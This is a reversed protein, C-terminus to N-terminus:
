VENGTDTKITTQDQDTKACHHENAAVASKSSPDILQQMLCLQKVLGSGNGFALIAGDIINYICTIYMVFNCGRATTSFIAICDTAIAM